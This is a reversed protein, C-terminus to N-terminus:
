DWIGQGFRPERNGSGSQLKLPLFIDADERETAAAAIPVEECEKEEVEM